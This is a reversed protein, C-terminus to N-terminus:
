VNSERKGLEKSTSKHFHMITKTEIRDVYCNDDNLVLKIVSKIHTVFFIVTSLRKLSFSSILSYRIFWEVLLNVM